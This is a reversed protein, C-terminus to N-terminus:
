VYFVENTNLCVAALKGGFMKGCDIAIHNNKMIVQGNNDRQSITPLHGTVLYKNKYYIKNYDPANFILEYFKYSDLPKNERFNELGDHVLVYFKGNINVTEYLSFDELYELIDYREYLSLKQFKELTIGGGNEQWLLLSKILTSDSLRNYNEETIEEMLPKLVKGAMYEHNGLVPYVNPRMMMDQLVKIPESGRDICDGLIYLDDDDSFKIKNLLTKYAVYEGHIDSMVYIM